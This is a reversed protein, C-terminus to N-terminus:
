EVAGGRKCDKEGASGAPDVCTYYDIKGEANYHGVCIGNNKGEESPCSGGGPNANVFLICVTMLMAVFFYTKKMYNLKLTLFYTKSNNKYLQCKYLPKFFVIQFIKIVSQSIIYMFPAKNM